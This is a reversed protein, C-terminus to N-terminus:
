LDSRRKRVLSLVGEFLPVYADVEVLPRGVGPLKLLEEVDADSVGVVEECWVPLVEGDQASNLGGPPKKEDEWPKIRLIIDSRGLVGHFRCKCDFLQSVNHPSKSGYPLGGLTSFFRRDYFLDVFKEVSFIQKLILFSHNELQVRLEEKKFDKDKKFEFPKYLGNSRLAIYSFMAEKKRHGYFQVHFPIKNRQKEMVKQRVAQIEAYVNRHESRKFPLAMIHFHLFYLGDWEETRRGKSIDTVKFAQFVKKEELTKKDVVVANTIGAKRLESFFDHMVREYEKRKASFDDINIKPFGISFHFLTKLGELRKISELQEMTRAFRDVVCEINDCYRISCLKRVKASKLFSKNQAEKIQASSVKQVGSVESECKECHLDFTFFKGCEALNNHIRGVIRDRKTLFEPDSSKRFRFVGLFDDWIFLPNEWVQLQREEESVNLVESVQTSTQM